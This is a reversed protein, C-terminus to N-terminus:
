KGGGGGSRGHRLRRWGLALGLSFFCPGFAGVTWRSARISRFGARLTALADFLAAHLRGLAIDRRALDFAGGNCLAISAGLLAGNGM